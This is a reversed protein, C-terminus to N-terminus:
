GPRAHVLLHRIEELTPMSPQAGPRTCALAAAANAARLADAVSDSRSLCATLVGVFTDGAGTTDVVQVSYAPLRVAGDHTLAYSGRSGLTVVIVRSGRTRVHSALVHVDGTVGALRALEGENVILVDVSALLDDPLSRAPAANLVVAVGATRAARAYARVTDLPTELQLVLHTVGALDPLDQPALHANAGPAVTIANEGGDAVSIYAAGTPAPVHRVLHTRVGSAQLSELLPRAFDDRGVAGLFAVDGGARAAAVAQNAGKGGPALVTDGGLVTEGPAPVHPVRVVFDLNASGAVLIM